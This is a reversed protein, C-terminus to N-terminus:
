KKLSRAILTIIERNGNMIAFEWTTHDPKMGNDLCAKFLKTIGLYAAYDMTKQNLSYAFGSIYDRDIIDRLPCDLIRYQYRLKTITNPKIYFKYLKENIYGPQDKTVTYSYKSHLRPLSIVKGYLIVLNDVLQQHLYM